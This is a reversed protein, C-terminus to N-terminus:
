SFKKKFKDIKKNNGVILVYDGKEFPTEALHTQLPEGNRLLLSVTLGFKRAFDLEMLTKGFLQEPVEIEIVSVNETIELYEIAGTMLEQRAIKKGAEEEPYVVLDAGLSYLIEGVEQTIAKAIIRKAKRDKIKKTVLIASYANTGIAIFVADFEDIRLQDLVDNDRFDGVFCYTTYQDIEDLKKKNLDCVVVEKKKHYLEKILGQGFRGAGIVLYQNM